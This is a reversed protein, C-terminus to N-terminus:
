HHRVPTADHRGWGGGRPGDHDRGRPGDHDRGRPGGHDRRPGDNHDRWPGNPRSDHHRPGRDWDRDRY